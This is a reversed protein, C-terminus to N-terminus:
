TKEPIARPRPSEKAKHGLATSSRNPRLCLTVIPALVGVFYVAFGPIQLSFDWASHLVVLFLMSLGLEGAFRYRKRNRRGRAFWSTLLLCAGVLLVPFLFGLTLMGELYLNHAKDWYHTIGCEPPRYRPFIASFSALGAGWPLNDYIAKGVGPWVCLRADELGELGARFIVREALRMLIAAATAVCAALCILAFVTRWRSAHRLREVWFGKLARALSFSALLMLAIGSSAIGARSLTLLLAVFPGLFLCTNVLLAIVASKERPGLAGGLDLRQLVSALNLPELRRILLSASLLSASGYFTAATNRNVFPATLSDLYYIKESSVLTKPFWLFQLISFVAIAFGIFNVAQLVRMSREDDQLLILGLAFVGLPLAIKIFAVVDAGPSVSIQMRDQSLWMGARIWADHSWPRSLPSNQFATWALVLALLGVVVWLAQGAWKPVGAVALGFPIVAFVMIAEIAVIFDNNGGLNLLLVVISIWYIMILGNLILLRFSPCLDRSIIPDVM